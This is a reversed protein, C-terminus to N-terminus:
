NPPVGSNPQQSPSKVRFARSLALCFWSRANYTPNNVEDFCIVCGVMDEEDVDKPFIAGWGLEGGGDFGDVLAVGAYEFDFAFDWFNCLADSDAM